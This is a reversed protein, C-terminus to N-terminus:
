KILNRPLKVLVHGEKPCESPLEDVPCLHSGTMMDEIDAHAPARILKGGRGPPGMQGHPRSQHRADPNEQDCTQGLAPPISEGCTAPDPLSAPRCGGPNQLGTPEHGQGQWSGVVTTPVTIPFADALVHRVDVARPPRVPGRM